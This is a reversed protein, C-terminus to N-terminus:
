QKKHISKHCNKCLTIGNNLDWFPKYTVALRVLTEKDEIPSFRSYERLFEELIKQPIDKARDPIHTDSIVGIRM